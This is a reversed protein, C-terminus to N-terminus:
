AQVPSAPPAPAAAAASARAPSPRASAPARSAARVRDASLRDTASGLRGVIASFVAACGGSSATCNGVQAARLAAAAAAPASRWPARGCPHRLLRDLFRRGLRFRVLCSDIASLTAASSLLSFAEPPPALREVAAPRARRRFSCRRSSATASRSPHAARGSGAISSRAPRRSRVRLAQPDRMCNLSVGVPSTSPRGSIMSPPPAPPM